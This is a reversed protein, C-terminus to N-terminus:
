CEGGLLRREMNEHYVRDERIRNDLLNITEDWYEDKHEEKKLIFDKRHEELVGLWDKSDKIRDLLSM